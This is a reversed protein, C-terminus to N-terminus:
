SILPFALSLPLTHRDRVCTYGAWDADPAPLSTSSCCPSYFNLGWPHPFSSIKWVGWPSEISNAAVYLVSQQSPLVGSFLIRGVLLWAYKTVTNRYQIKIYVETFHKSNITKIFGLRWTEFSKQHIKLLEAQSLPEPLNEQSNKSIRTMKFKLLSVFIGEQPCYFRM